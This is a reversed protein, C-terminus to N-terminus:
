KNINVQYEELYKVETETCTQTKVSIFIHIKEYGCFDYEKRSNKKIFSLSIKYLIKIGLIANVDRVTM